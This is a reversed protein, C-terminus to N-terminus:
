KLQGLPYDILLYDVLHLHTLAKILDESHDNWNTLPLLARM